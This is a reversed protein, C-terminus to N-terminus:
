LSQFFYNAVFVNILYLLFCVVFVFPIRAYHTLIWKRLFYFYVGYGSYSQRDDGNKQSATIKHKEEVGRYAIKLLRGKM